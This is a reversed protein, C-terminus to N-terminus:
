DGAGSTRDSRFQACVSRPHWCHVEAGFKGSLGTIAGGHPRNVNQGIVRSGDSILFYKGRSEKVCRGMYAVGMQMQRSKGGNQIKM